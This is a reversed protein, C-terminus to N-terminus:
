NAALSWDEIQLGSIMEFDKQNRTVLTASQSLVISAIRLDQTGPRNKHYQRLQNFQAAATDDYPLVSVTRYFDLAEQFRAFAAVVQSATKARNKQALRGRVQEMASVITVAIHEPPITMIRGIIAPQNRQLLTIHDTDLIYLPTM